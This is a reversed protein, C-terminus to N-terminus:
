GCSNHVVRNSARWARSCPGVAPCAQKALRTWPVTHLIRPLSSILGCLHAIIRLLSVGLEFLLHGLNQPDITFDLDQFFGRGLRVPPALRHRDDRAIFLGSDLGDCRPRRIQRGQRAGVGGERAVMLVLAMAREAQQGPNIQKGALDMREHSIAMAAALEDFQELM